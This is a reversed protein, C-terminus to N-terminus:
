LSPSLRPILIPVTFLVRCFCVNHIAALDQLAFATDPHREGQYKRRIDVIKQFCEQAEAYRMQIKHLIGLDRLYFVRFIHSETLGPCSDLLVGAQQIHEIADGYHSMNTFVEAYILHVYILEPSQPGLASVIKAQCKKCAELCKEHEGSVLFDHADVQLTKYSCYLFSFIM